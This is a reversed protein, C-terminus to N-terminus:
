HRLYSSHKGRNFTISTEGTVFLSSQGDAQLARHSSTQVSAGFQKAVSEGIMNTEGGSDIVVKLPIHKYFVNLYPSQSIQVCRSVSHSPQDLAKVCRMAPPHSYSLEELSDDCPQNYVPQDDEGLTAILHAHTLFCRDSEPLYPCTSLFHNFAKWGAQKCIRCTGKSSRHPTNCQFSQPKQFQM